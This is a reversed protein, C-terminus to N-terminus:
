KYWDSGKEPSKKVEPGKDPSKERIYKKNLFQLDLYVNRPVEKGQVLFKMVTDATVRGMEDVKNVVDGRYFPYRVIAKQAEPLGGYGVLLPYPKEGAAIAEAAKSSIPASMAFIGAVKPHKKLVAPVEEGPTKKESEVVVVDVSIGPHKKTEKIFAEIM